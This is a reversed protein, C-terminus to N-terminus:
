NLQRIQHPILFLRERYDLYLTDRLYRKFIGYNLSCTGRFYWPISKTEQLSLFKLSFTIFNSLWTSQSPHCNRKGGIDKAQRGLVAQSVRTVMGEREARLHNM